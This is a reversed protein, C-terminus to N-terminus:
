PPTSGSVPAQSQKSLVDQKEVLARGLKAAFDPDSEAQAIAPALVEAFNGVFEEVLRSIAKREEANRARGLAERYSPDERLRKIFDERTKM